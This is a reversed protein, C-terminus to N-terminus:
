YNFKRVRVEVKRTTPKLLVEAQLWVLGVFGLLIHTVDVGGVAVVETFYIAVPLFYALIVSKAHAQTNSITAIRGLAVWYILGAIAANKFVHWSFFVLAAVVAIVASGFLFDSKNKM